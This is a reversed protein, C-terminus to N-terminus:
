HLLARRSLSISAWNILKQAKYPAQLSSVKNTLVWWQYRDSVLHSCHVTKCRITKFDMTINDKCHSETHLLLRSNGHKQQINFPFSYLDRILTTRAICVDYEDRWILLICYKFHNYGGGAWKKGVLQKRMITHEDRSVVYHLCKM